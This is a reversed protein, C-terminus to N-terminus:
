RNKRVQPLAVTFLTLERPTTSVSIEGEHLDVIKKALSLGLGYSKEEDAATRSQDARYFREFIHPLDRKNIGEGQNTVFVKCTRGNSGVSITVESGAPSYKLANDLLIRLLDGLMVPNGDVFIPRGPATVVVRKKESGLSKVQQSILRGIDVNVRKFKYDYDLRALELLSTALDSLKDVEELNSRLLERLEDKSASKDKLTVQIESKMVALPTKLEHSADSSFRSQAEHAREIPQLTRRALLFSGLGGCALVGLNIYLLGFFISAQAEKTQNLRIDNLTLPGPLTIVQKSGELRIQLRELRSSIENTSLEYILFSFLISIAMLILLYSTTLKLTASAFM